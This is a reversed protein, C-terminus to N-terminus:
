LGPRNIKNKTLLIPQETIRIALLQAKEQDFSALVVVTNTVQISM